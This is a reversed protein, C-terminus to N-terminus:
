RAAEALNCALQRTSPDLGRAGAARRWAQAPLVRAGWALGQLDMTRLLRRAIYAGARDVELQSEATNWFLHRLREPVRGPAPLSQAPPVVRDLYPDLKRWRPSTVNAYWVRAPRARGAAIVESKQMALGKDRLSDLARSAATPSLGSRRAVARTSVLGLPARRLAALAKTEPRTLGAVKPAKGLEARLREADPKGIAFRGNPLRADIELRELARTVRPVSTGLERALAAASITDMDNIISGTTSLNRKTAQELVERESWEAQLVRVREGFDRGADSAAITTQAFHKSASPEASREHLTERGGDGERDGAGGRGVASPCREGLLGAERAYEDGYRACARM